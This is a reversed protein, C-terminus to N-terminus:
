ITSLAATLAKNAIRVAVGTANALDAKEAIVKTASKCSCKVIKTVIFLKTLRIMHEQALDTGAEPLFIDDFCVIFRKNLEDHDMIAELISEHANSM